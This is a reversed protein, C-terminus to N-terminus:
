AEASWLLQRVALLFEDLEFPKYLCRTSAYELAQALKQEEAFGTIFIVKQDPKQKRHAEVFDIGDLGGPMRIDTIILSYSSSNLAMLAETANRASQTEIGISNLQFTLLDRYGPEDDVVLVNLKRTKEGQKLTPSFSEQNM